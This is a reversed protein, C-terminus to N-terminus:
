GPVTDPQEAYLLKQTRRAVARRRLTEVQTYLDAAPDFYDPLVIGNQYGLLYWSHFFVTFRELHKELYEKKWEDLIGEFDEAKKTADNFGDQAKLFRKQRANYDRKARWFRWINQLNTMALSLCVGGIVPFLLTILRFALLTINFAHEVTIASDKKMNSVVWNVYEMIINRESDSINQYRFEGLVWITYLSLFLIATKVAFKVWYEWWVHRLEADLREKKMTKRDAAAEQAAATKEGPSDNEKAKKKRKRDGIIGPIKKFQTVYFGLPTGIYDDFYIKIYVACLAIGIILLWTTNAGVELDFGKETLIKALPLDAFILFIAISFYLFFLVWSFSRPHKHYQHTMETLHEKSAQYRYNEDDVINKKVEAESQFMKLQGQAVSRVWEVLNTAHAKAVEEALGKEIGMVGDKFGMRWFDEGRGRIYKDIGPALLAETEVVINIEQFEPSVSPDPRKPGKPTEEEPRASFLRRVWEILGSWWTKKPTSGTEPSNTGERPLTAM